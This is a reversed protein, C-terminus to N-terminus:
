RVIGGVEFAEAKGLFGFQAARFTAIARIVKPNMYFKTAQSIFLNMTRLKDEFFADIRYVLNPKFYKLSSHGEYFYLQGQFFRCASTTAKNVLRHDQHRDNDSHTFIVQPKVLNISNEIAKITERGSDNNLYASPLNQFKVEAKLLDAAESQEEKRIDGNGSDGGNTLILYYLKYGQQQYRKFTGFCGFELDDPHSAIGLIRREKM